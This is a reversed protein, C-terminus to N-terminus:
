YSLALISSLAPETVSVVIRSSFYGRHDDFEESFWHGALIGKEVM